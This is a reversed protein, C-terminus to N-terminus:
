PVMGLVGRVIEIIENRRPLLKERAKTRKKDPPIDYQHDVYWSPKKM